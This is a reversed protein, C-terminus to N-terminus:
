PIHINDFFGAIRIYDSGPEYLKNLERLVAKINEKRRRKQRYAAMEVFFKLVFNYELRTGQHRSSSRRRGTNIKQLPFYSNLEPVFPQLIVRGTM